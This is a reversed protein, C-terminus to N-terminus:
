WRCERCHHFPHALVTANRGPVVADVIGSRGFLRGRDSESGTLDFIETSQSGSLM